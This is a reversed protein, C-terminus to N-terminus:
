WAGTLPPVHSAAWCGRAQCHRLAQLEFFLQALQSYSLQGAINNLEYPDRRLDYFEIEGNSYQVYLYDKTRM